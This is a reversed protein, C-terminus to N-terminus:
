CCVVKVPHLLNHNFIYTLMMGLLRTCPTRSTIFFLKFTTTHGFIPLVLYNRKSRLAQARFTSVNKVTIIKAISKGSPFRLRSIFILAWSLIKSHLGPSSLHKKELAPCPLLTKKSPWVVTALGQVQRTRSAELGQIKNKGDESAIPFNAVFENHKTEHHRILNAAKNVAVVAQCFGAGASLKFFYLIFSVGFILTM